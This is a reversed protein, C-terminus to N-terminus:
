SVPLNFEDAWNFDGSNENWKPRHSCWAPTVVDKVRDVAPHYPKINIVPSGDEADSYYFCSRNKETHADIYRLM